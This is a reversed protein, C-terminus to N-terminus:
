GANSTFTIEEVEEADRRDKLIRARRLSVGVAASTATKSGKEGPKTSSSTLGRAKKSDPLSM